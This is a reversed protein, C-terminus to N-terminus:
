RWGSAWAPAFGRRGYFSRMAKWDIAIRSPEWSAEGVLDRIALAVAGRDPEAYHFDQEQVNALEEPGASATTLDAADAGAGGEEEQVDTQASASALCLLGALLFALTSDHRPKHMDM